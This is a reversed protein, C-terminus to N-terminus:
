NLFFNLLVSKIAFYCVKCLFHVFSVTKALMCLFILLICFLGIVFVYSFPLSLNLFICITQFCTFFMTRIHCANTGEPPASHRFSDAVCLSGDSRLPMVSSLHPHHQHPYPGGHDQNERGFDEDIRLHPTLSFGLWNNMNVCECVFVCVM